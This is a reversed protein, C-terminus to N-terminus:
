PGPVLTVRGDVGIRAVLPADDRVEGGLVRFVFTRDTTAPLSFDTEIAAVSDTTARIARAGQVLL